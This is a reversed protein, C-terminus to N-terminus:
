KVGEKGQEWRIVYTGDPGRGAVVVAMSLIFLLAIVLGRRMYVAWWPCMGQRSFRRELDSWWRM